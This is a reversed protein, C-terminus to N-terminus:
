TSAEEERVTIAVKHLVTLILAGIAWIALTISIEPFTASIAVKHLVTLILAGIAWIALTISIEPFTASYEIIRHFPNPIFGGIVLAVGKDIWCALFISACAFALIGHHKRASPILLLIVGIFAFPAATWM